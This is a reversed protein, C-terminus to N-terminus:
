VDIVAERIVTNPCFREKVFIMALEWAFSGEYIELLKWQEGVDEQYLVHVNNNAYEVIHYKM